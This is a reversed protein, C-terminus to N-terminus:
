AAELAAVKTELTEIKAIAEQLAATLLPVLRSHDIMQYIPDGKTIGRDLNDEAYVADKVGDIAEPVVSSVEHAFFGDELTKTSDAKWNFRRPILTKLRTIGDSIITENEKLRYDSSTHYTVNSGSSTIRGVNGNPNNFEMCNKGTTVEVGIVFTGGNEARQGSTGSSPSTTCNFLTSGSDMRMRESGNTTFRLDGNFSSDAHSSIEAENNNASFFRIVGISDAAQTNGRLELVGRKPGSITLVRADTNFGSVNPSTTGLGVHGNAGIRMRETPVSDADGASGRTGFVLPGISNSGERLHGIYAGAFTGSIGSESFVIQPGQGATASDGSLMIHGNKTGVTSSGRVLLHNNKADSLGIAVRGDSDIRMRETSATNFVLNSGADYHIRGGDPDSADGLDLFAANGDASTVRVITDGSSSVHFKTAPSTTGIGVLQNKINIVDSGRDQFSVISDQGAGTRYIRFSSNETSDFISLGGTNDDASQVITFRTTPSTTGIGVNGDSKLYMRTNSGARLLLNDGNAGVMVATDTTTNDKIQIWANADTSKFESTVDTGSPAEVSLRYTPSTTGIGAHGNSMLRMAEFDTADGGGGVNFQLIGSGSTAGYARLVAKNSIYQLVAANSTHANIYSKALIPGAAQISGAQTSLATTLGVLVDGDSDIRMRETNNQRFVVPIDNFAGILATSSGFTGFLMMNTDEASSTIIGQGLVHLTEGLRNITTGIHVRGSSDIRMRETPSAAGDATTSFVLRGPLDNAAATGDIEASIKAASHAADNGDSAVFNINGVVDNNLVLGQSGITGNRSKVLSFNAGVNNASFIGIYGHATSDSAGILQFRPNSGSISFNSSHGVLLRGSSDIRTLEGTSNGFRFDNRSKLTATGTSDKLEISVETDSSEFRACENTSGSNVHLALSPSSSGVGLRTPVNVQGSSNLTLGTTGGATLSVTNTGGFIGSDSDGFHISPASNSGATAALVGTLTGGALALYTSNSTSREAVTVANLGAPTVVRNTATGTTTESDTALESIGSVSTTATPTSLSGPGFIKVVSNDSARMFGGISNINANVALEGVEPLDSATPVRDQVVSNKLKIRLAM